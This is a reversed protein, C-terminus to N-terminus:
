ESRCKQSPSLDTHKEWQTCSIFSKSSSTIWFVAANLQRFMGKPALLNQAVQDRTKRDLASFPDDLVVMKCRHFIARALAQLECSNALITYTEERPIDRVVRQRQGGSLNMGDVGVVTEAGDPLAALDQDLCCAKLVAQYWNNDVFYKAMAGCIVQKITRNPLWPVQSCYAICETRYTITGKSLPVEGLIAKALTSKGAGVPGLCAVVQGRSLELNVDKLTPSGEPTWKVTLDQISVEVGEDLQSPRSSRSIAPAKQSKVYDEIKDFSAYAAIAQPVITM